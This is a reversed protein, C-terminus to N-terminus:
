CCRTRRVTPLPSTLRAHGEYSAPTGDHPAFPARMPHPYVWPTRMPHPYLGWQIQSLVGMGIPGEHPYPRWPTLSPRRPIRIPGERSASLSMPYPYPGPPHPYARTRFPGEHPYPRWTTVFPGQHSASLAKTPHPYPWGWPIHIPGEHSASLAKKPPTYPGRPHPYSGWPASLAGMFTVVHWLVSSTM